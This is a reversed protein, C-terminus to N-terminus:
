AVLMSCACLDECSMGTRIFIYIYISNYQSPLSGVCHFKWYLDSQLLMPSFSLVSLVHVKRAIWPGRSHGHVEPGDFTNYSLKM